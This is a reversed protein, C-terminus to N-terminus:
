GRYNGQDKLLELAPLRIMKKPTFWLSRRPDPDGDLPLGLRRMVAFWALKSCYFSSEDALDFNFFGYPKGVQLRAEAAIGARQKESFDKLRAHWLHEESRGERWEEYPVRFVGGRVAEIVWLRGEEGTEAIAVHGVYFPVLRSGAYQERFEEYDMEEIVRARRADLESRLYELKMSEWETKLPIWDDPEKPFLFDGSQIHQFDPDARKKKGGFALAGASQWALLLFAVSGLFDRRTIAM